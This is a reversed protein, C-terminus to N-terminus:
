ILHTVNMFQPKDNFGPFDTLLFNSDKSIFGESMSHSPELGDGLVM